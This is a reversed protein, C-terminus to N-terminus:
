LLAKLAQLDLKGSGLIPIGELYRFEEQRPIWLNPLGQERLNSILANIDLDQKSYFVVLKEGKQPCPIGLVAFSRSETKAFESLKAELLEHPVMEGSIKSFRSQRGTITIYGNEDMRAIDGTNYFGDPTIVKNTAEADNLYGQMVLGGKVMILGDTDPPLTDGTEPDVIKVYVGPMPVGISGKKGAKRGLDVTAPALNISVIPSLETCGYGEVVKMGTLNYFDEAIDNRLKEGGTIVLRLSKLQEATCRRIYYQLFTPSAMMISINYKEITKGTTVADLPNTVFVAKLRAMTPVWFGVTLGFAHFLPLNGLLTDNKQWDVVRYFSYFDSNINRHSLMVAKPVGSSGSSFLLLATRYVDNWSNPAYIKATTRRSILLSTIALLKDILNVTPIIDELLIMNKSPEMNLKSLFKRSTLVHKVDAKKLAADRSATGSTFNVIAPVKDAFMTAFITVVTATTNPLMVGIFRENPTLKRIKRSLILARVALQFNNVSKKEMSDAYYCDFPRQKANRLLEFHIPMEKYQRKIEEEAGLRHIIQIIEHNETTRSVPEGITISAHMPRSSNKNIKIKDNELKLMSGKILGLRIPIIPVNVNGLLHSCDGHFSQTIGNPSVQGEPFVAVLRGNALASRIDETLKQMQRVKAGVPVPWVGLYNFLYRLIRIRFFRESIM